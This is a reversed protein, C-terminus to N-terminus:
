ELNEAIDILVAFAKDYCENGEYIANIYKDDKMEENATVRIEYHQKGVDICGILYLADKHGKGIYVDINGKDCVINKHFATRTNEDSLLEDSQFNYATVSTYFPSGFCYIKYGTYQMDEASKVAVYQYECENSDSGMHQPYKFDLNNAQMEEALKDQSDLVKGYSNKQCATASLLLLSVLFMMSFVAFFKKKM